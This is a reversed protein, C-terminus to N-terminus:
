DEYKCTIKSGYKCKLYIWAGMKVADTCRAHTCRTMCRVYKCIHMCGDEVCGYMECAEM